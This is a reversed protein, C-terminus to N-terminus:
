SEKEGCERECMGVSTGRVREWVSKSGRLDVYVVVSDKGLLREVM